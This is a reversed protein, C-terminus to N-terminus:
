TVSRNTCTSRQKDSLLANRSEPLSDYNSKKFCVCLHGVFTELLVKLLWNLIIFGPQLTRAHINVGFPAVVKRTSSKSSKSYM